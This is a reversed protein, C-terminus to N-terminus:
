AAEPSIEPLAQAQATARLLHPATEPGVPVVMVVLPAPTTEVSDVQATIQGLSGLTQARGATEAIQIRATRSNARFMAIAAMPEAAVVVERSPLLPVMQIELWGPHVAAALAPDMLQGYASRALELM